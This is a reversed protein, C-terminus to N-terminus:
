SLKEEPIYLSKYYSLDYTPKTSEEEQEPLDSPIYLSSVYPSAMNQAVGPNSKFGSMIKAGVENKM